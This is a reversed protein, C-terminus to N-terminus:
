VPRVSENRERLYNITLIAVDKTSIKGARKMAILLDEVSDQRVEDGALKTVSNAWRDLSCKKYKVQHSHALAEVYQAVNKTPFKLTQNTKSSRARKSRTRFTIAINNIFITKWVRPTSTEIIIPKGSRAANADIDPKQVLSYGLKAAADSIITLLSDTMEKPPTNIVNAKAYIGRGLRHIVGKSILKNLISSVQTPSGLNAVDSRLLVSGTRRSISQRMRSELNM